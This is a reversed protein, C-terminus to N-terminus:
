ISNYSGLNNRLSESIVKMSQLTSKGFAAFSALERRMRAADGDLKERLMKLDAIVDDLEQVSRATVRKILSGLDSAVAQGDTPFNQDRVFHHKSGTVDFLKQLEKDSTLVGM